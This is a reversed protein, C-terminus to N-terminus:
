NKEYNAEVHQTDKHYQLDCNVKYVASIGNVNKNAQQPLPPSPWFYFFFHTSDSSNNM